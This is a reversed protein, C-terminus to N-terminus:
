DLENINVKAKAGIKLYVYSDKTIRVYDSDSGETDVTIEVALKKTQGLKEVNAKIEKKIEDTAPLSVAEANGNNNEFLAIRQGGDFLYSNNEDMLYAQLKVTVPMTNKVNLLLGMDKFTVDSVNFDLTDKLVMGKVSFDLPIRAEINSVTITGADTLFNKESTQGAPNITASFRFDVHSPMNSLVEGLEEGGIRYEKRFYSDQLRPNATITVSGANEKVSGDSIVKDINLGIPFGAGNDVRFALWAEKIRLTTSSSNKFKDFTSVDLSVQDPVVSQQGFYGHVKKMEVGSLSITFNYNGTSATSSQIDIKIKVDFANDNEFALKYNSLNEVFLSGSFPIDASFPTGNQTLKPITVTYSGNATFSPTINFELTGSKFIISDIQQGSNFNYRASYTQEDEMYPVNGGPYMFSAGSINLPTSSPVEFFQEVSPLIDNEIEFHLFGIGDEYLVNYDGSADLRITDNVLPLYLTPELDSITIKDFEFDKEDFCAVFAFVVITLGLLIRVIKKM